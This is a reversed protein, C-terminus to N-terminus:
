GDMIMRMAGAGMPGGFFGGIDVLANHALRSVMTEVQQVGGKVVQTIEGRVDNAAAQLGIDSKAAPTAIQNFFTASPFTVEYNFVYKITFVGTSLPGGTIYVVLIDNGNSPVVGASGASQVRFIDSNVHDSKVLGTLGRVDAAPTRINTEYSLSNLDVNNIAVTTGSSPIALIGITGQNNMMSMSPTVTAGASVLRWNATTPISSWGQYPIGAAWTNIIDGTNTAAVQYGCSPDASFAIAQVGSGAGTVASVFGTCQVSLTRLNTGDHIKAGRAAGCFPDTLSCVKHVLHEPVQKGKNGNTKRRRPRSAGKSKSKKKARQKKAKNNVM